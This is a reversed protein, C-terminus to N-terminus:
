FKGDGAKHNRASRTVYVRNLKLRVGFFQLIREQIIKIDEKKPIIMDLVKIKVEKGILGLIIISAVFNSLVVAWAAGVIHYKPVLGCLCVALLGLALVRCTMAYKPLGLAKLITVSLQNAGAFVMGVLLIQSPKVAGKFDSGFLIPVVYPVAALTLFFIPVSSYCYSLFIKRIASRREEITPASTIRPLAITSVTLVSAGIGVATSLAVAYFGILQPSALFSLFIQDLKTSAQNVLNAITVPLGYKLLNKMEAYGFLLRIEKLSQYERKKLAMLVPLSVFCLISFTGIYAIITLGLDHSGRPFFIWIALILLLYLLGNSLNILNLHRILGSGQLFSQLIMFQPIFFVSFGVSLMGLQVAKASYSKMLFSVLFVMPIIFLLTIVGAAISSTYLYKWRRGSIVGSFYGLGENIGFSAVTCIVGSWLLIVAFEGRMEPGLIRAIVISTLVGLATLLSNAGFTEFLDRFMGPKCSLM